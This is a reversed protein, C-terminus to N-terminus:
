KLKKKVKVGMKFRNTHLIFYIVNCRRTLFSSFM